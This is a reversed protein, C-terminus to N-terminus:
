LRLITPMPQAEVLPTPNLAWPDAACPRHTTSTPQLVSGAIVLLKPRSTTTALSWEVLATDDAITGPTRPAAQVAPANLVIGTVDGFLTALDCTSFPATFPSSALVLLSWALIKRTM